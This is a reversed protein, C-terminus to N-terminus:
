VADRQFGGVGTAHQPILTGLGATIAIKATIPPGPFGGRLSSCLRPLVLCSSVPRPLVLCSSIKRGGLHNHAGGHEQPAGYAGSRAGPAGWIRGVTSGPSGIHAEAHVMHALAREWPAGFPSWRAGLAGLILGRTCGTRGMHAEGREWAGLIPWQTSGPCEMHARGHEKPAGYAGPAGGRADRAGWMRGVPSGRRGVRARAHEWLM